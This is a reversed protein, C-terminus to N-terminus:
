ASGDDGSSVEQRRRLAEAVHTEIARTVARKGEARIMAENHYANHVVAKEVPLSVEVCRGYISEAHSPPVLEDRGAELIFIRPPPVKAASSREALTGMNKWSDLHNRLFPWLYRYPIWKGPYVAGLMEKISLFPTELIISDLRLTSPFNRSVALNTAFGSGVSQGWFILVPPVSCQELEQESRDAIWRLAAEADKNIGRESARGSSTWYGRYSLCVMTYAYEASKDHDRLVRLVSSLDPLRPPISSANGQFYLIYVPIRRAGTSAEPLLERDAGARVEAVCLALKTNDAARIREERWRIGYCQSEYDAITERRANPPLGPTYIIKNQFVVMMTCKWVWLAALLGVFYLPPMFVPNLHFRRVPAQCMPRPWPRPRPPLPLRTLRLSAPPFPRLAM